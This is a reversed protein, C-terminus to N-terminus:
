GRDEKLPLSLGAVVLTVRECSAAVAQNLRGQEDRFRRALSHAPVIDLGVENSVLLVEGAARSLAALFSAQEREWVPLPALAINGGTGADQLLCNSLWLTLCDIVVCRGPLAERALVAGLQLPEEITLWERPRGARHRAIREAMEADVPSATAIFCVPLSSARALRNALASKGSRAGGLLFHRAM